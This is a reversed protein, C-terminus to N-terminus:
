TLNMKSVLSAKVVKLIQLLFPSQLYIPIPLSFFGLCTIINEILCFWTSHLFCSYLLVTKGLFSSLSQAGQEKLEVKLPIKNRCGWHVGSTERGSCHAELPSLMSVNRAQWVCPTITGAFVKNKDECTDFSCPHFQPWVSAAPHEADM